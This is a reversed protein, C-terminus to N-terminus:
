RKQKKDRGYVSMLNNLDKFFDLFANTEDIVYEEIKEFDGMRYWYPVSGGDTKKKTFADLGSGKFNLGNMMILSYKLDILPKKYLYESLPPCPLNYKKFKEFLFTLDFIFNHILPVFSWVDSDMLLPHFKRVIEEESSEWEKLITLEGIPIGNSGLPQYQITVINDKSPDIGTTELDLYYIM